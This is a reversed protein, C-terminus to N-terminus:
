VVSYDSHDHECEPCPCSIPIVIDGSGEERTFPSSSWVLSNAVSEDHSHGHVMIMRSDVLCMQMILVLIIICTIGNEM